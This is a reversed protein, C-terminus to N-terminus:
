HYGRPLCCYRQSVRRRYRGARFGLREQPPSELALNRLKALKTIREGAAPDLPLKELKYTIDAPQLAPKLTELIEFM